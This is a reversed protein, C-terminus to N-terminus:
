YLFAVKLLRRRPVDYVAFILLFPSM